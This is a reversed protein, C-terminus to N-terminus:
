WLCSSSEWCLPPSQALKSSDIKSSFLPISYSTLTAGIIARHTETPATAESHKEDRVASFKSGYPGDSGALRDAQLRVSRCDGVAMDRLEPIEPFLASCICFALHTLGGPVVGSNRSAEESCVTGM